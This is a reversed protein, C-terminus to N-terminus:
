RIGALGGWEVGRGVGAGGVTTTRTESLECSMGTSRVNHVCLGVIWGGTM